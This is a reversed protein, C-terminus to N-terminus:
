TPRRRQRPPISEGLKKAADVQVFNRHLYSELVDMMTSLEQKTPRWNGHAAASGARTFDALINKEDSGIKGEELLCKLKEEFTIAPDIGLVRTSIDFATRMGNATLVLLDNDFAIYVEQMIDWIDTNSQNNEHQVLKDLWDPKTRRNQPPWYSIDEEYMFASMGGEDYYDSRTESDTLVMQYYVCGCGCCRLIRHKTNLFMSDDAPNVDHKSEEHMVDVNIDKGCEPCGAVIQTYVKESM